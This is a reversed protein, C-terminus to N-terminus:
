YCCSDAIAASAMQLPVHVASFTKAHSKIDNSSFSIVVYIATVQKDRKQM